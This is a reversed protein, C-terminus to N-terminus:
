ECDSLLKRLDVNQPIQAGIGVLRGDLDWYQKLEYVPDEETGAGMVAITEIVPIIRASRTPMRKPM